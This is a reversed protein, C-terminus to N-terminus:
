LVRQFRRTIFEECSMSPNRDPEVSFADINEQTLEELYQEFDENTNM